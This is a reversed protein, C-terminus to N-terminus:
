KYNFKKEPVALLIEYIKSAIAKIKKSYNIDDRMSKLEDIVTKDSIVKKQIFNEFDERTM